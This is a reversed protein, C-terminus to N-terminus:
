RFEYRKFPFLCILDILVALQALPDLRIDFFEAAAYLLECLAGPLELNSGSWESVSFSLVIPCLDSRFIELIIVFPDVIRCPIQFDFLFQSFCIFFFFSLHLGM